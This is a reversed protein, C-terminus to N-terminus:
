RNDDESPNVNEGGSTILNRRRNKYDLTKTYQCWRKGMPCFGYWVCVPNFLPELCPEFELAEKVIMNMLKITDNWAKGCLRLRCMEILRLVDVKLDFDRLPTSESKSRTVYKGIREHRIFHTHVKDPVDFCEIWFEYEKAPSDGSLVLSYFMEDSMERNLIRLGVTKLAAKKVWYRGSKVKIVVRM